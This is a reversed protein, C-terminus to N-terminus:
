FSIALPLHSVLVPKLHYFCFHKYKLFSYAELTPTKFPIKSIVSFYFIFHSPHGHEWLVEMTKTKYKFCLTYYKLIILM